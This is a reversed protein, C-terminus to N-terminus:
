WDLGENTADSYPHWAVFSITSIILTVASCLYAVKLDLIWWLSIYELSVACATCPSDGPVHM